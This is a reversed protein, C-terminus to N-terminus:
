ADRALRFGAFVHQHYPHHWNRFTGRAVHPRTAWSGGRLARFGTELFPASYGDYPFPTFGPYPRFQSATWEWVDGLMQHCGYASAGEPYSGVPAVGFLSQDLNAHAPTWADDGWPSRRKKDARPDWTAAKEWEPETPLRMGAWAAYAEAEYWSVHAVPEDPAVPARVDYERTTWGGSGDEEWYKPARWAHVTRMYWGDESWFEPRAYGDDAMFKLYEGKTVLARGIEFASLDVERAPAENDYIGTTQQAGMVFPGAEVRAMGTVRERAKPKPSRMRPTFRGPIAQMAVLMNEQHQAEHQVVMEHLFGDRTLPDHSDLDVTRLAELVRTRSAAMQALLPERAPLKLLKRRPRPAKDADYTPDYHQQWAASGEMGDLLWSREFEAIHGLDWSVPGVAVDHIEALDEESLGQILRLTRERMEVLRDSIEQKRAPVALTPAVMRVSFGDM